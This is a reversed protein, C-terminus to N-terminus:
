LMSIKQLYEGHVKKSMYKYEPVHINKNNTIKDFDGQLYKHLSLKRIFM